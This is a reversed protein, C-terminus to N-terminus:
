ILRSLKANRSPLTSRLSIEKWFRRVIKWKPGQPLAQPRPTVLRLRRGAFRCVGPERRSRFPNRPQRSVQQLALFLLDSGTITPETTDPNITGCRPHPCTASAMQPRFALKRLNHRLNSTVDILPTLHPHFKSRCDCHKERSRTNPRLIRRAAGSRSVFRRHDSALGVACRHHGAWKSPPSSTHLSLHRQTLAQLFHLSRQIAHM